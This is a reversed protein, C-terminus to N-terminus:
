RSVTRPHSNVYVWGREVSADPTIANVKLTSRLCEIFAADKAYFDSPHMLVVDVIDTRGNVAMLLLDASVEKRM